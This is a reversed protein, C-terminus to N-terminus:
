QTLVPAQLSPTQFMKERSGPSLYHRYYLQYSVIRVTLLWVWVWGCVCVCVCVFACVCARICVCLCVCVYVCACMCVRVRVCVCVANEYLIHPCVRVQCDPVSFYYHCVPVHLPFQSVPM